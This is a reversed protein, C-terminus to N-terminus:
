VISRAIEVALDTADKGGVARLEWTSAFGAGEPAKGGIFCGRLRARDLNVGALNGAEWQGDTLMLVDAPDGGHPMRALCAAAETLAAHENNDGGSEETAAVVAAALTAQSDVVISHRVTGDYTVLACTRGDARAELMVALALAGAWEQRAGRMSGSKDLVVVVDGERAIGGGKEVVDARGEALALRTLAAYGSGLAGTLGALALTTLDAADNLGGHTVGVMGERGRVHRSARGESLAKRLAGVAKLMATVHPTVSALVADPIPSAGGVGTGDGLAAAFAHAAEARETAERAVRAIAEGAADLHGGARKAIGEAAALAGRAREEAAQAEVSARLADRKEDPTTAARARERARELAARAAELDALSRSTDTETKAGARKLAALVVDALGVVAERAVLPHAKSADALAQWADAAQLAGMVERGLPSPRALPACGAPDLLSAHAESLLAPWESPALAGPAIETDVAVRALDADVDLGHRWHLRAIPGRETAVPLPDAAADLRVTRPSTM